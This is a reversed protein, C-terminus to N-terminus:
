RDLYSSLSSLVNSKTPYWADPVSPRRNVPARLNCGIKGAEYRRMKTIADRYRFKAFADLRLATVTSTRVEKMDYKSDMCKPNRSRSMVQVINTASEKM